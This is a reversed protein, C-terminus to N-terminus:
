VLGRQVLVYVVLIFTVILAASVAGLIGLWRDKFQEWRNIKELHAIIRDGGQLASKFDARHAFKPHAAVDQADIIRTLDARLKKPLRRGAKNMQAQLSKGRARLKQDLLTSIQEAQKQLMEETM